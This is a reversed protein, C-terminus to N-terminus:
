SKVGERQVSLINVLQYFWEWSSVSTGSMSLYESAKDKNINWPRLYLIYVINNDNEYGLNDINDDIFVDLGTLLSKDKTVVLSDWCEWELHKRLWYYKNKVNLPHTATVFYISHGESHLRNLMKFAAKNPKVIEWVRKDGFYEFFNDRYKRKVFQRMDYETIKDITLNDGSDKNYVELVCETLNNLVDDIDIGIRM